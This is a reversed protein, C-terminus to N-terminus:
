NHQSKPKRVCSKRQDYLTQVRAIAVKRDLMEDPTNLAEYRLQVAFANYELLNWFQEVDCANRDLINLLASVDHTYPYTKGISTIWAKLLKESAQQVHFGFIEDAFIESNMMGQIARLDKEAVNLLSLAFDRDSMYCKVKEYHVLLWM